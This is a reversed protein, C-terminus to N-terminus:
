LFSQMMAEIVLCDRGDSPLEVPVNNRTYLEIWFTQDGYCIDYVKVPVFHENTLGLYQHNALDVFSAKVILEERPALRKFTIMRVTNNQNFAIDVLDPYKSNFTVWDLTSKTLASLDIWFQEDTTGTLLKFDESAADETYDLVLWNEDTTTVAIIFKDRTARITYSSEQFTHTSTNTLYLEYKLKKDYALKDNLDEWNNNMVVSPSINWAVDHTNNISLGNLYIIRSDLWLKVSRIGIALAKNFVQRWHESFNFTYRNSGERHQADSLWYTEEQSSSM